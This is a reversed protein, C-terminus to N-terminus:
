WNVLEILLVNCRYNIVSSQSFSVTPVRIRLKVVFVCSGQATLLVRILEQFKIIQIPECRLFDIPGSKPVTISSQLLSFILLFDVSNFHNIKCFSLRFM